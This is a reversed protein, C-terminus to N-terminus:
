ISGTEDPGDSPKGHADISAPQQVAYGGFVHAVFEKLIFREESSPDRSLNNEGVIEFTDLAALVDRVTLPVRHGDTRTASQAVLRSPQKPGPTYSPLTALRGGAGNLLKRGHARFVDPALFGVADMELLRVISRTLSSTDGNFHDAPVVEDSAASGLGYRAMLDASLHPHTTACAVAYAHIAARAHVDHKRDLVFYESDDHKGGPQDSGDVRRVDFKRYLGQEANTKTPDLDTLGDPRNKETTM